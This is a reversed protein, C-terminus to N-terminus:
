RQRLKFWGELELILTRRLKHTNAWKAYGYWGAYSELFQEKIILGNKYSEICKRNRSCKTELEKIKEDICKKKIIDLSKDGVILKVLQRFHNLDVAIGNFRSRIKNLNDRAGKSLKTPNDIGSFNRFEVSFVSSSNSDDSINPLCFSKYSEIKEM